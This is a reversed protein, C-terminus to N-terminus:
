DPQGAKRNSPPQALGSTAWKEAGAETLLRDLDDVYAVGNEFHLIVVQIEPPFAAGSVSRAALAHRTGLKSYIVEGMGNEVIARSVLAVTGTLGYDAQKISTQSSVRMKSMFLLVALYGIVGSTIALGLAAWDNVRVSKLIFGAGGFWTLFVVLANFNLWGPTAKHDEKLIQDNGSYYADPHDSSYSSGSFGPKVLNTDSGGATQGGSFYDLGGLLFSAVTFILGFIFCGLYVNILWEM